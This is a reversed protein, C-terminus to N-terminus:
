YADCDYILGLVLLGQPWLYPSHSLKVLTPLKELFVLKQRHSFYDRAPGTLAKADYYNKLEGCIVGSLSFLLFIM